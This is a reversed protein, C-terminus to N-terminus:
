RTPPRAHPKDLQQQHTYAQRHVCECNRNALPQPHPGDVVAMRQNDCQKESAKLREHGQQPPRQAALKGTKDGGDVVPNRKDQQRTDASLHKPIRKVFTLTLLAAGSMPRAILATLTSSLLKVQALQYHESNRRADIREGNADCEGKELNINPKGNPYDTNRGKHQAKGTDYDPIAKSSAILPSCADHATYHQDRYTQLNENLMEELRGRM